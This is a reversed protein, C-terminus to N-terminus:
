WVVNWGNCTPLDLFSCPGREVMRPDDENLQYCDSNISRSEHIRRKTYIPPTTWTDLKCKPCPGTFRWDSLECVKCPPLECWRFKWPNDCTGGNEAPKIVKKVKAIAGDSPGYKCTYGSNNTCRAGSVDVEETESLICNIPPCPEMNCENSIEPNNCTGALTIPTGISEPTTVKRKQLITGKGTGCTAGNSNTCKANPVVNQWETTSLVCNTACAVLSCTEPVIPNNCTGVPTISAPTIVKKKKNRTGNGCTAGTTSVCSDVYEWETESLVCDTPCAGLSCTESVIPNNCTGAPTVSAPTIVKKKKNRTGNGCTVGTASVCSNVYEWETESLVCDTACSPLECDIFRTPITCTGGHAETQTVIKNQKQKGPGCSAGTNSVCSGVNEWDGLVCDTSCPPLECDVQQETLNQQTNCAQGGNIPGSAPARTQWKKGGTGCTKNTGPVKCTRNLDDTWPNNQKCSVPCNKNCEKTRILISPCDTGGYLNTGIPVSRTGTQSQTGSATSSIGNCTAECDSWTSPWIIECNIPPPQYCFTQDKDYKTISNSLLLALASIKKSGYTNWREVTCEVITTNEPVYKGTIVYGVATDIPDPFDLNHVVIIKKNNDILPQKNSDVYRLSGYSCTITPISVETTQPATTTAVPPCTDAQVNSNTLNWLTSDMNKTVNELNLLNIARGILTNTVKTVPISIPEENCKNLRYEPDVGNFVCDPCSNQFPEKKYTFYKYLGFLIFFLIFLIIIIIFLKIKKNKLLIFM